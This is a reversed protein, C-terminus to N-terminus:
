YGRDSELKSSYADLGSRLADVNLGEAPVRVCAMGLRNALRVADLADAPCFLLMQQWPVGTAAKVATAADMWSSNSPPQQVRHHQQGRQQEQPPSPAQAANEAPQQSYEVQHDHQQTCLGFLSLTAYQHEHREASGRRRRLPMRPVRVTLCLAICCLCCGLVM